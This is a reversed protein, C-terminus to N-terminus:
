FSTEDIFYLPENVHLMEHVNIHSLKQSGFKHLMCYLDLIYCIESPM